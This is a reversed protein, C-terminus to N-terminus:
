RVPSSSPLRSCTKRPPHDRPGRPSPRATGSRTTSDQAPPPPDKTARPNREAIFSLVPCLFTRFLYSISVPHFTPSTLDPMLDPPRFCMCASTGTTLRPEPVHPEQLFAKSFCKQLPSPLFTVPAHCDVLTRSDALTLMSWLFIFMGYYVFVHCGPADRCFAVLHGVAHKVIGGGLDWEGRVGVFQHM